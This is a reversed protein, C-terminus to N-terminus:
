YPISFRNRGLAKRSRSAWFLHPQLIFEDQEVTRPLKVAPFTKNTQLASVM